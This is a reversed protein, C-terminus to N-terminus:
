REDCGQASLCYGLGHLGPGVSAIGQQPLLSARSPLLVTITEVGLPTIVSLCAREIPCPPSTRHMTAQCGRGSELAAMMDLIALAGTSKGAPTVAVMAASATVM